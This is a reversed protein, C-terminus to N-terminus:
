EFHFGFLFTGPHVAKLMPRMSRGAFGCAFWYPTKGLDKPFVPTSWHPMSRMSAEAKQPTHAQMHPGPVRM